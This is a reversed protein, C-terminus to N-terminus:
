VAVLAWVTTAGAADDIGWSSALAEVLALGRGSVDRVSPHQVEPQSPAGGDTVRVTVGNADVEWTVTVEGGPLPQAHRIANSLLETVVLVVDDIVESAITRHSLDSAIRHRVQSASEPAAPLRITTVSQGGVNRIDHRDFAQVPKGPRVWTFTMLFAPKRHINGVNLM